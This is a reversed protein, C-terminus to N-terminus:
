RREEMWQAIKEATPSDEKELISKVYGEIAEKKDDDSIIYRTLHVMIDVLPNERGIFDAEGTHRLIRAEVTLIEASGYTDKISIDETSIVRCFYVRTAKKPYYLGDEDILEDEELEPEQTNHGTLAAKYFLMPDDTLSFTFEKKEKLNYATDSPRFIRFRILDEDVDAGMAATNVWGDTSVLIGERHVM